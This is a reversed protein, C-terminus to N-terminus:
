QQGAVPNAYVITASGSSRPRNASTVSAQAKLRDTEAEYQKLANAFVAQKTSADEKSKLAVYLPSNPNQLEGLLKAIADPTSKANKIFSQVLGMQTGTVGLAQATALVNQAVTQADTKATAAANTLVGFKLEALKLDLNNKQSETKSNIDAIATNYQTQNLVNNSRLQSIKALANQRATEIAATAREKASSVDKFANVWVTGSLAILQEPTVKSVDVWRELLIRRLDWQVQNLRNWEYWKLLKDQEQEFTYLANQNETILSDNYQQAIARNNEMAAVQDAKDQDAQTKMKDIVDQTEDIYKTDPDTVVNTPVLSASRRRLSEARADAISMGPNAARIGAVSDAPTSPIVTKLGTRNWVEIAEM